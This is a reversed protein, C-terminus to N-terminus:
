FKKEFDSKSCNMYLRVVINNNHLPNRAEYIYEGSNRNLIIIKKIKSELYETKIINEDWVTTLEDNITKKKTDLLVSRPKSAYIYEDDGKEIKKTSGDTYGMYAEKFKCNLLIVEAGAVGGSLL